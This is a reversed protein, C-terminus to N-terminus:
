WTTRRVKILIVFFPKKIFDKELDAESQYEQKRGYVPTYEAVVTNETSEAVINYMSM